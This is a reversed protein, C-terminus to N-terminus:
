PKIVDEIAIIESIVDRIGTPASLLIKDLKRANRVIPKWLLEWELMDESVLSNIFYTLEQVYVHERFKCGNYVATHINEDIWELIAEKTNM